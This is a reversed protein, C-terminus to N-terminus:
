VKKYIKPKKDKLKQMMKIAGLAFVKRSKATHSIEIIEDELFLKIIHTGTENGVRFANTQFNSSNNSLIKEIEKATGSPSDKKHKHHFESIAIEAEPLKKSAIDVLEYLLNVGASTNKCLLVPVIKALEEFNNEDLHTCTTSFCGYPLVNEKAFNIYESKDASTSFDIIADVKEKIEATSQYVPFTQETINVDIGAAIKHQNQEAITDVVQKGM